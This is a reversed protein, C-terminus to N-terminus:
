STSGLIEEEFMELCELHLATSLAAESFYKNESFPSGVSREIRFPALPMQKFYRDFNLHVAATKFHLGERGLQTTMEDLRQCIRVLVPNLFDLDAESYFALNSLYGWRKIKKPEYDLEFEDKLWELASILVETADETSSRMDIGIGDSWLTLKAITSGAYGEEFVIGKNEDFDETKVPYKQFKFREVIHPIITPLFIKGHPNLENVDVIAIARALLVSSLQM